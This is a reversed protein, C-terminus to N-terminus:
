LAILWQGEAFGITSDFDKVQFQAAHISPLVGRWILGPRACCSRYDGQNGEQLLGQNSQTIESGRRNTQRAHWRCGIVDM